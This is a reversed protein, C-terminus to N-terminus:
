AHEARIMSISPAALKRGSCRRTNVARHGECGRGGKGASFLHLARGLRGFGNLFRAIAGEFFILCLGGARLALFGPGAGLAFDRLAEGLRASHRGGLFFARGAKWFHFVPTPFESRGPSADM